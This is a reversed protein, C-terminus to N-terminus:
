WPRKRQQTFKDTIEQPLPTISQTSVPITNFPLLCSFISYESNGFFVSIKRKPGSDRLNVLESKLHNIKIATKGYTYLLHSLCRPDCPTNYLKRSLFSYFKHSKWLWGQVRTCSLFFNTWYAACPSMIASHRFKWWKTRHRRVYPKWIDWSKESDYYSIYRCCEIGACVAFILRHHNRLM